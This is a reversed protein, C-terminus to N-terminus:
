QNKTFSTNLSLEPMVSNYIKLVEKATRLEKSEGSKRDEELCEEKLEMHSIEPSWKWGM